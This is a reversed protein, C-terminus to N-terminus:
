PRCDSAPRAVFLAALKRWRSLFSRHLSRGGSFGRRGGGATIITDAIITATAQVCTAIDRGMCLRTICSSPRSSAWQGGRGHMGIAATTTVTALMGIGIAHGTDRRTDGPMSLEEMTCGGMVTYRGTVTTLLSSYVTM